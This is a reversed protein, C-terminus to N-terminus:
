PLLSALILLCPAGSGLLLGTGLLSIFAFSASAVPGLPM